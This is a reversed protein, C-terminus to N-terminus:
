WDGVSSQKKEKGAKRAQNITLNACIKVVAKLEEVFVFWGNADSSCVISINALEVFICIAKSGQIVCIIPCRQVRGIFEM